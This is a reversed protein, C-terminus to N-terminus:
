VVLQYVLTILLQPTIDQVVLYLLVFFGLEFFLFLGFLAEFLLYYNLASLGLFLGFSGLM